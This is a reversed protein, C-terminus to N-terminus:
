ESVGGSQTRDGVMMRIRAAIEKRAKGVMREARQLATEAADVQRRLDRRQDKALRRVAREVLREEESPIPPREEIPMGAPKIIHKVVHRKGKSM